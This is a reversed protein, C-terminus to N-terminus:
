RMVVVVVTAADDDCWSMEMQNIQIAAENQSYAVELARRRTQLAQHVGFLPQGPQAHLELSPLVAMGEPRAGRLHKQLAPRVVPQELGRLGGGAEVGEAHLRRHSAVLVESPRDPEGGLRSGPQSGHSRALDCACKHIHTSM